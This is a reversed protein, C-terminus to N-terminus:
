KPMAKQILNAVATAWAPQANPCPILHFQEGGLEQWQEKARMGLEELTELCDAVFAPSAIALHRVGQERLTVLHEETYPQIWPIRGLRSQFAVSHQCDINLQQTIAHTTAYCQARYCYRNNASISPCPQRMDCTVPGKEVRKIQQEPLGHYSFVIHDVQRGSLHDHIQAVWANIFGTDTYFDNILHLTPRSAFSQLAKFAADFVSATTARAYQPFLPLVIIHDCGLADLSQMQSAINPSGYRMAYRIITHEDFHAAVAETLAVTHQRIPSGQETWISQYAHASQGRRFPVIIANVLLWRLPGPLDVVKPDSLFERLFSGVAKASPEAPTGLQVLLVGTKNMISHSIIQWNFAIKAAYRLETIM